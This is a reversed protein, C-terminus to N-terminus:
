SRKRQHPKTNQTDGPQQLRRMSVARQEGRDIENARLVVTSAAPKGRTHVASVVYTKGHLVDISSRPRRTSDGPRLLSRCHGLIDLYSIQM